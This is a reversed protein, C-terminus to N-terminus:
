KFSLMGIITIMWAVMYSLSGIWVICMIFTLPFLKKLRPRECDPITLSFLFHIPWIVFWMVQRFCSKEKPFRILSYKKPIIEVEVIEKTIEVSASAAAVGAISDAASALVSPTSSTIDIKSGIMQLESGIIGSDASLKGHHKKTTPSQDNVSSSVTVIVSSPPLIENNSEDIHTINKINGNQQFHDISLAPIKELKPLFFDTLNLSNQM